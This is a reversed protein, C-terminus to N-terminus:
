DLVFQCVQSYLRCTHICVCLLILGYREKWFGARLTTVFSCEEHLDLRSWRILWHCREIFTTIHLTSMSPPILLRCHGISLSNHISKRGSVTLSTLWQCSLVVETWLFTYIYIHSIIFFENKMMWGSSCPPWMLEACTPTETEVEIMMFGPCTIIMPLMMIHEHSTVQTYTPVRHGLMMIHGHLTVKTYITARHGLMMIHGHLTVQTYITARHGMMMIHGHLTVQTYITARCARHGLMMIHGHLSWPIYQPEIVWCWLTDMSLSRPMHQPEIVWCWLTGHLTVQTYTTARHGLTMIHGHLTARHGLMM